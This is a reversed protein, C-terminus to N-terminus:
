EEGEDEAEEKAKPKARVDVGASKEWFSRSAENGTLTDLAGGMREGQRVRAKEGRVMRVVQSPQLNPEANKKFKRKDVARAATLTEPLADEHSLSPDAFAPAEANLHNLLKAGFAGDGAALRLAGENARDTGAQILDKRGVGAPAIAGPRLAEADPTDTLWDAAKNGVAGAKKGAKWAAREALAGPQVMHAVKDKGKDVMRDILGGAADAAHHTGPMPVLAGIGGTAVTTVDKALGVVGSVAEKNRNKRHSGALGTATARTLDDNDENQAVSDDVGARKHDKYAGAFAAGTGVLPLSRVATRAAAKGFRKARDPAKWMEKVGALAGHGSEDLSYQQQFRPDEIIDRMDSSADDKGRYQPNRGPGLAALDAQVGERQKHAVNRMLDNDKMAGTLPAAVTPKNRKGGSHGGFGSAVAPSGIRMAQQAQKRAYESSAASDSVGSSKALASEGGILPAGRRHHGIPPASYVVGGRRQMSAPAPSPGPAPGSVHGSRGRGVIADVHWENREAIAEAAEPSPGEEAHEAEDEHGESAGRELDEDVDGPM